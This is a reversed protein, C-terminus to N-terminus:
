LDHALACGRVDTCRDWEAGRGVAETPSWRVWRIRGLHGVRGRGNLGGLIVSGDGNGLSTPHSEGGITPVPAAMAVATSIVLVALVVV